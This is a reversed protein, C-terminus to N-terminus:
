GILAWAMVLEYKTAWYSKGKMFADWPGAPPNVRTSISAAIATEVM